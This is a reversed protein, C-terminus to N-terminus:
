GYDVLLDEEVFNEMTGKKQYELIIWESYILLRNLRKLRIYKLTEPADLLEYPEENWGLDSECVPGFM